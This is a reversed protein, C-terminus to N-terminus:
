LKKYGDALNQVAPAYNTYGWCTWGLYRMSAYIEWDVKVSKGDCPNKISVKGDNAAGDNELKLAMAVVGDILSWPDPPKHGTAGAIRDKYGWWTDSMFQAAGMAGGSGPYSKSACSVPLKKYNYDEGADNLDEVIDKFIKKRDSRMDANKYTCAGANPNGGSEMSLMGFLFGKRVDTLKNAYKIADKIEGTDYSKGLIRSLDSKLESLKKRLEELTAEKKVIVSQTSQHESVLNREQVEKLTLLKEKEKKEEEVVKKEEEIKKQTLITEHTLTKVEEQFSLAHDRGQLLASFTHRKIVVEVMPIQAFYYRQRVLDALSSRQVDIKQALGEIEKGKREITEEVTEIIEETEQIDERTAYLNSQIGQLNKKLDSVEAQKEEIEEETKEIDKETEKVEGAFVFFVVPVDLRAQVFIAGGIILAISLFIRSTSRFMKKM